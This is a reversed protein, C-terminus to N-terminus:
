LPLLSAAENLHGMIQDLVQYKDMLREVLGGGVVYLVVSATAVIITRYPLM